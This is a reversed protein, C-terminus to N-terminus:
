WTWRYLRPSKQVWHVNDPYAIRMDVLPWFLKNYIRGPRIYESIGRAEQVGEGTQVILRGWFRQYFPGNDLIEDLQLFIKRDNFESEIVRASKLGFMSYGINSTEISDCVEVEGDDGILWARREWGDTKKMLYYIFTADPLHYRGWYWEEFSEKLPEHGTNHDHYGIGSFQINKKQYGAIQLNGEAHARPMVLNWEHSHSPQRSSEEFRFSKAQSRFSLTGWISDGNALTQDLHIDFENQDETKTGSFRCKGILGAPETEYFEADETEVERFSYFVPRGNEYVSISLAPFQDALPQNGAELKSIYKKSFPNGEYFIIVIQYGDDSHADFYWWEYSGPVPKETQVDKSFNSIIKM